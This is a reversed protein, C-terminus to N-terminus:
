VTVQLAPSNPKQTSRRLLIMVEGEFPHFTRAEREFRARREADRALTEPLTKPV